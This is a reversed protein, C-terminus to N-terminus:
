DESDHLAANVTGRLDEDIAPATANRTDNDEEGDPIEEPSAYPKMDELRRMGAGRTRM